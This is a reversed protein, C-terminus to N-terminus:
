LEEPGLDPWAAFRVVPAALGSLELVIVENDGSRLLPGPVYMTRQPGRGSYRGLNFGNIWVVGAGWHSTELHLDQPADLHFAGSALVPGPLQDGPGIPSGQDRIAGRISMVDVALAGARWEDLPRGNIAAPGILGKAEGLRPGYDVGGLHEVLVTLAGASPLPVAREHHERDITGLRVGDLFVHAIDRVEAVTFLGGTPVATSYYSFGRPAGFATADPLTRFPADRSLGAALLPVSRDLAAEFAPALARDAPREAPVPAYRAIVERFRWYKDTPSGDEALPADYDYSTVIPRYIGKDNAGSTFGFNTGGHFMYINVSAGASLMEELEAAAAAAPTTHHAEGRSDFWGCWFESCMLPGTPQHGRLMALRERAHAGFSVTRHLGDLGGARLMGDSAQDVTILPVDIGAQRTRAVLARLYDADTGYAGYENEIQVLIVPGGAGILRPAVIAYVADLFENVADLFRPDSSRLRVSGDALLWGPLGGDHWEACIYPGPRVIAHLGAQQALDLFRGLDLGGDTRFTGREPAHENWPVYTEVTNLGMMRAKHLRDAWQDPHVRFYHLAGSIVQFPEDDLLFDTGGIAFSPM